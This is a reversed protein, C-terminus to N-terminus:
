SDDRDLRSIRIEGHEVTVDCGNWTFTLTGSQQVFGRSFLLDLADPDITEYLPSLETVSRGTVAAVAKVVAESPTEEPELDYTHSTPKESQDDTGGDTCLTRKPTPRDGISPTVAQV